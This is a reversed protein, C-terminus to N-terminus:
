LEKLQTNDSKANDKLLELYKETTSLRKHGVLKSVLVLPVGAKLQHAIFTHRLDNVKAGKIDALKLYRDISTRINRVQFPKGTKTIFLSKSHSKPRIELWQDIAQKCAKNLPIDRVPHSEYAKVYLLNDQVDDLALNALESIRVGTQLFLEVIAYIRLDDRCVDRLARYEMKSLIRPPNLQYKPQKVSQTPNAVIVGEKVLFRFFTKISNLKRAVTMTTYGQTTLEAQLTKIDEVDVQNAETKGRKVLFACLQKIDNGYALITASARGLNQLYHVFQEQALVLKKDITTNEAM